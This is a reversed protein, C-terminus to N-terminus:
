DESRAQARRRHVSRRLARFMEDRNIEVKRSANRAHIRKHLLVQDVDVRAIGLDTAHFVWDSDSTNIYSTDFLGVASDDFLERRAMLVGPICVLMDEETWERPAWPPWDVPDDVFVRQRALAFGADPRDRLATVQAELKEPTWRDDQDLFAILEGGAAAVGRNRAAAVGEHAGPLERMKPHECASQIIERSGDSSGDDCLLVEWHPYTQCEISDLAQRLYREGNYVAIVISVLPNPANM